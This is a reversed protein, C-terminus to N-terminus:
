RDWCPLYTQITDNSLIKWNAVISQTACRARYQNWRARRFLHGLSFKRGKPM